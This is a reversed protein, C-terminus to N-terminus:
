WHYLIDILCNHCESPGHISLQWEEKMPSAVRANVMRRAQARLVCM